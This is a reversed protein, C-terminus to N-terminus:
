TVDLKDTGEINNQIKAIRGNKIEVDCKTLHFDADMVMGNAFIM